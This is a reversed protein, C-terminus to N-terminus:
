RVPQQCHHVIGWAEAMAAVQTGVHGVGVVGLTSEGLNVGRETQLLLLVSQVYQCVSAANCGPANTWRIGKEACYATDIHDFGITATAIFQVNSGELLSADCRTRTRVILADADRVAENDMSSGPMYVADAGMTKLAERIYPIKDDVIVRM